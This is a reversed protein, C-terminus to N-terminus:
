FYDGAATYVRPCHNEAYIGLATSSGVKILGKYSAKNWLHILYFDKTIAMTEELYKPETYHKWQPWGEQMLKVLDNGCLNKVVRTVLAPENKVYAKGNYNTEYDRLFLEAIEHGKGTPELSIVANGLTINDHAGVYNLPVNELSRLVVVDMDLYIGGFRYLSILRLLDATHQMPFGSNLLDGKKIWDEIPTDRAYNSINLQRFQVNKYSEIADILLKQGGSLPRYTPCAFLLFVQFNPNNSAASEIACAQRATLNMVNFLTVPHYCTTEHFFITRGPPPKSSSLLVDEVFIKNLLIGMNYATSRDKIEYNRYILTSIDQTTYIVLLVVVSVVLIPLILRPRQIQFDKLLKKQTIFMIIRGM